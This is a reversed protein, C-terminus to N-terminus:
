QNYLEVATAGTVVMLFLGGLVNVVGSLISLKLTKKALKLACGIIFIWAAMIGVHLACLLMYNKLAHGAFVPVVTLYLIIAKVNFLNLLLAEKFGALGGNLESEQKFASVGNILLKVGLWGLFLVGVIHLAGMLLEHKVLLKTVGLGVLFGHILIGLGTGIVIPLAGRIGVASMNSVALTFSAGPSLAIPLIAILFGKVDIM